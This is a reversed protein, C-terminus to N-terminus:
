AANKINILDRVKNWENSLNTCRLALVQQAGKKSWRQGSQKLRKQVVSRHAAEIAGSGIIGAGISRYMKYDMRNKNAEYYGLLKQKSKIISKPSCPLQGINEIVKDIHSRYLLEQQKKIWKKRKEHDQFYENAFEGLYEVAHYWDLIQIAAPFVDELWNKIWVAGDTIFVLRNKLHSYPALKQEFRYTFRKNDGLLADYESRRIWGKEGGVEMCDSEKFIRGLKVEKWGEERTFIMSGDVEAYVVEEKALQPSEKIEEKDRGQELLSGYKNTVRQIQTVSVPTLLYKTLLEQSEMYCDSQGAFCMMDQM